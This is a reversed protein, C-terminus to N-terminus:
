VAFLGTRVALLARKLANWAPPLSIVSWCRHPKGNALWVSVEVDKILSCVSPASVKSLKDFNIDIGKLHYRIILDALSAAGNRGTKPSSWTTNPGGLSAM